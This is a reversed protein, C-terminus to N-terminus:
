TTPLAGRPAALSSKARSVYNGGGKAGTLKGDRVVFKGRVM